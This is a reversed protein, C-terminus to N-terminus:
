GAQFGEASSFRNQAWIRRLVPWFVLASLTFVVGRSAIAWFASGFWFVSIWALPLAVVYTLLSAGLLVDGRQHVVLFRALIQDFFYVPMSVMYARFMLQALDQDVGEGAFGSVLWPSAAVVIM